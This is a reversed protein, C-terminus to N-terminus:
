NNKNEEEKCIPIQFEWVPRLKVSVLLSEEVFTVSEIALLVRMTVVIRTPVSFFTDGPFMQNDYSDKLSFYHM